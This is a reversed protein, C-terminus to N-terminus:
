GRGDPPVASGREHSGVLRLGRIAHALLRWTRRVRRRTSVLPEDASHAEHLRLLYFRRKGPSWLRPTAIDHHPEKLQLFDAVREWTVATNEDPRVIWVADDPWRVALTNHLLHHYMRHLNEIDDRGKLAHRKDQTDWTLVDVRLRRATCKRLAWRLAKDAAFRERAGTADKWSLEGVSSDRLLGTLEAAFAAHDTYRLSVVALARYRGETYRSEDAFAIHTAEM